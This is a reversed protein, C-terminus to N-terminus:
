KLIRPALNDHHVFMLSFEKDDKKKLDKTSQQHLHYVKSKPTFIIKKRAQYRVAYCYLRDSRYHRGLEADLLGIKNISERTIYVCFFPVFNIELSCSADNLKNLRKIM